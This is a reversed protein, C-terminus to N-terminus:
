MCVCMCVYVCVCMSVYVSLRDYLAAREDFPRMSTGRERDYVTNLASGRHVARIQEGGGFLHSAREACAGAQVVDDDRTHRPARSM